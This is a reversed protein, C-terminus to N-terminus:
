FYPVMSFLVTEFDRVCLIDGTRPLITVDVTFNTVDGRTSLVAEYFSWLGKSFLAFSYGLGNDTTM